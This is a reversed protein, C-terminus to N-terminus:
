GRNMFAMLSAILKSKQERKVPLCAKGVYVDDEWVKHVHELNILCGGLRFFRDKTVKKEEDGLTGRVRLEGDVLHYVVHHLSGDMYEIQDVSIRKAGEKTMVAISPVDMHVFRVQLRDLMTAFEFYRIPTTLFDVADVTYGKLTFHRSSTIFVLPMEKNTERLKEATEIGSEDQLEVDMLVVDFKHQKALFASGKAFVQVEVELAKEEQYRALYEKLTSVLEHKDECIAIKLM